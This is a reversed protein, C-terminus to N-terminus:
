GARRDGRDLPDSPGEVEPDCLQEDVLGRKAADDSPGIPPPDNIAAQVRDVFEQGGAAVSPDLHDQRSEFRTAPGTVLGVRMLGVLLDHDNELAAELQPDAVLEM